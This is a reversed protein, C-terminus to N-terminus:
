GIPYFSLECVCVGNTEMRLEACPKGTAEIVEQVEGDEERGRQVNEARVDM